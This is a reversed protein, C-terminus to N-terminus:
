NIRSACKQSHYTNRQLLHSCHLQFARIFNSVTAVAAAELLAGFLFFSPFVGFLVSMNEIMTANSAANNESRGGGRLQRGLIACRPFHSQTAPSATM